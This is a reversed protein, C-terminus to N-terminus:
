DKTLVCIGYSKSAPHGEPPNTIECVLNFSSGGSESQRTYNDKDHLWGDYENNDHVIKITQNIKQGTPIVTAFFSKEVRDPFSFHGQADTTTSFTRTKQDWLWIYQQEIKAGAVPKGDLLVTGKVESFMYLSKAM